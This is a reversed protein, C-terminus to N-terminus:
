ITSQFKIPKSIKELLEGGGNQSFVKSSLFKELVRGGPALGLTRAFGSQSIVATKAEDDLVYCEVDIGFKEKLNGRHTAKVGWRALAGKKAIEAKREPTLAEARAKGGIAKSLDKETM